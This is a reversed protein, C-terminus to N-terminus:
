VKIEGTVPDAGAAKAEKALKNAERTAKRQKELDAFKADFKGDIAWKKLGEFYKSADDWSAISIPSLFQTAGFYSTIILKNDKVVYWKSAKGRKPPALEAANKIVVTGDVNVKTIPHTKADATVHAIQVNVQAIFKQAPTGRSSQTKKPTEVKIATIGLSGIFDELTFETM